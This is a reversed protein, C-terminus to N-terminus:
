ALTLNWKKNDILEAWTCAVGNYSATAGEAELVNFASSKFTITYTHESTTGSYDKLHEAINKISAVTLPSSSFSISKGIIGSVIEFTGLDYCRNFTGSFVTDGKEPIKLKIEKFNCYDFTSTMTTCNSFDLVPIDFMKALYFERNSTTIQSFDLVVGCAKLRLVLNVYPSGFGSFMYNSKTPRIDHTPYFTDAHWSKGYFAYEYDTRTGNKQFADWFRKNEAKKGAEYVEPIGKAMGDLTLAETGGTKDRIADAIATMKENVTAM